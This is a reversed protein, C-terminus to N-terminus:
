LFLSFAIPALHRVPSFNYTAHSTHQSWPWSFITFLYIFVGYSAEVCLIAVCELSTYFSIIRSLSLYLECSLLCVFFSEALQHHLTEGASDLSLIFVKWVDRMHVPSTHCIHRHPCMTLWSPSTYCCFNGSQYYSRPLLPCTTHVPGYTTNITLKVCSSVELM